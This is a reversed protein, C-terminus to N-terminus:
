NQNLLTRGPHLQLAVFWRHREGPRLFFFFNLSKSFFFFFFFFGLDPLCFQGSLVELGGFRGTGGRWAGFLVRSTPALSPDPAGGSRRSGRGHGVHPRPAGSVAM